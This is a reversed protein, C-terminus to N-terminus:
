ASLPITHLSQERRERVTPGTAAKQGLPQEGSSSENITANEAHSRVRNARRDHSLTDSREGPNQQDGAQPSRDGTKHDCDKFRAESERRRTIGDNREEQGDETSRQGHDPGSGPRNIGPHEASPVNHRWIELIETAGRLLYPKWV